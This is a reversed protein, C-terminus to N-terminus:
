AQLADVFQAVWTEMPVIDRGQQSCWAWLVKTDEQLLIMGSYANQCAFDVGLQAEEMPYRLDGNERLVERSLKQALAPTRAEYYEVQLEIEDYGDRDVDGSERWSLHVPLLVTARQSFLGEHTEVTGEPMMEALTPFPPEGLYEEIPQYGEGARDSLNGPLFAWVLLFVMALVSTVRHVVARRKWDKSCDLRGREELKRQLKKLRLWRAARSFVFGLALVLLVAMEWLHGDFFFLLSAGDALGYGCFPFALLLIPVWFLVDLWAWQAARAMEEPQVRPEARLGGDYGEAGRYIYFHQQHAVYEWGLATYRDKTAQDPEELGRGFLAGLTPKGRGPLLRYPIDKPEGKSFRWTYSGIGDDQLHLGEKAMDTLWSALGEPDCGSCPPIRRVTREEAM